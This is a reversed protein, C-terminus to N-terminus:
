SEGDKEISINILEIHYDVWELENEYDEPTEFDRERAATKYEELLRKVALKPNVGVSSWWEYGNQHRGYLHLDHDLPVAQYDNYSKAAGKFGPFIGEHHVDVVGSTGPVLSRKSGVFTLYNSSKIKQRPM